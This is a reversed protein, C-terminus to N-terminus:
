AADDSGGFVVEFGTAIGTIVTFVVFLALAAVAGATVALVEVCAVIGRRVM